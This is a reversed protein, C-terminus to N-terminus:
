TSLASFNISSSNSKYIAKIMGAAQNIRSLKDFIHTLDKLLYM